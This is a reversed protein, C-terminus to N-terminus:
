ENACFVHNRHWRLFKDSPPASTPSRFPKTLKRAVKLTQPSLAKEAFEPQCTGAKLAMLGKGFLGDHLLCMLVVNEPEGRAKKGNAWGKIHGAVLLRPDDVSCLCCRNQYRILASKRVDGQGIRHTTTGLREGTKAYTDSSAKEVGRRIQSLEASTLEYYPNAGANFFLRGKVPPRYEGMPRYIIRWGDDEVGVVEGEGLLFGDYRFVLTMGRECRARMKGTFNYEKNERKALLRQALAPMSKPFDDGWNGESVSILKIAM